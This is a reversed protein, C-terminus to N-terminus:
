DNLVVCRGSWVEWDAPVLELRPLAVREGHRTLGEIVLFSSDRLRVDFVLHFSTKGLIELVPLEPPSDCTSGKDAHKGKRICRPANVVGSAILTVQAPDFRVANKSGASITFRVMQLKPGEIRPQESLGTEDREWDSTGVTMSFGKGSYQWRDHFLTGSGNEAKPLTGNVTVLRPYCCGGAALGFVVTVIFRCVTKM